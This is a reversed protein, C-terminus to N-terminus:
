KLRHTKTPLKNNQVNSTSKKPSFHKLDILHEFKKNDLM